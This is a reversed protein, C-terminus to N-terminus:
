PRFFNTQANALSANFVVLTNEFLQVDHPELGFSSFTGWKKLDKNLCYIKGKGPVGYKGEEYEAVSAFINGDPSYVGHGVFQENSSNIKYSRTIVKKNLDVKSFYNLWQGVCSVENRNQPNLIVEHIKFKMPIRFLQKSDLNYSILYNEHSSIKNRAGVLLTGKRESSLALPSFFYSSLLFKLFLRRDMM